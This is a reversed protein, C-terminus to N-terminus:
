QPCALVEDYKEQDFTANKDTDIELFPPARWCWVNYEAKNSMFTDPLFYGWSIGNEDILKLMFKGRFGRIGKSQYMAWSLHYTSIRRPIEDRQRQWWGLLAWIPKTPCWPHMMGAIAWTWTGEELEAGCVRCRWPAGRWGWNTTFVAFRHALRM